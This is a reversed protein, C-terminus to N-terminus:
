TREALEIARYVFGDSAHLLRGAEERTKGTKLMVIALKVQMNARALAKDAVDSPADCAMQVMRRARHRLKANSANMDVMLNTYVRGLRIMAGTSLANLVMKQATGAKLRTSGMVVEPGVLPAITVHAVASMATEPNCTVAITACGLENAAQLAGITYPTTGSAAIGVVVDSGRALALLDRAGAAPDDEAGEVAEQLARPGGAIVARVVEPSVGFTPPCEAADLVGLRGSTGAGVYILRGGARLREAVLDVARALEPITRRVALAVKEDEQNMLLLIEETSLRDLNVSAELRGETSLSDFHNM